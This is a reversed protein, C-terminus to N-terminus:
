EIFGLFNWQNYSGTHSFQNETSRINYRLNTNIIGILVLDEIVIKISKDIERRTVM